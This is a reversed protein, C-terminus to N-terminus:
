PLEGRMSQTIKDFLHVIWTACPGGDYEGRSNRINLMRNIYELPDCSTTTGAMASLYYNPNNSPPPRSGRGVESWCAVCAALLEPRAAHWRIANLVSNNARLEDTGRPHYDTIAILNEARYAAPIAGAMLFDQYQECTPKYHGPLSCFTCSM